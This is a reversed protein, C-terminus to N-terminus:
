IPLEKQIARLRRRAIKCYEPNLEIGIFSKGQQSAVLPVTGAGSFPDLVIGDSPCGAKLPTEVLAPPFTAFHAESFPKTTISWVTRKIRAGLSCWQRDGESFRDGNPYGANSPEKARNRVRAQEKKDSQYPEYQTEFWYDHGQWLSRKVQEGKANEVWKWDRGEVGPTGPPPQKVSEMTTSNTWFIAKSNKVFFFVNEFDVTFRDKASSPMCNNKKWIIINRLIWGRDVMGISFRYPILCLSKSLGDSKVFSNSVVNPNKNTETNGKKAGGYTDGIVVFCTGDKRLVRKVEDFIALLHELYLEFTPELGLQGDVGYDRLGWYPPSTMVCNVSEDPLEKLVKLSDGCIIKNLYDKM